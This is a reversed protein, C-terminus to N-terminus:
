QHHDSSIGNRCIQVEDNRLGVKAVSGRLPIVNVEERRSRLTHCHIQLGAVLHAAVLGLSNRFQHARLHASEEM